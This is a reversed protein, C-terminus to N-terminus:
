ASRGRRALRSRRVAEWRRALMDTDARGLRDLEVWLDVQRESAPEPNASRIILASM